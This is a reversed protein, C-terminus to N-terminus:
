KRFIKDICGKIKKKFPKKTTPEIKKECLLVSNYIDIDRHENCTPCTYFLELPKKIEKWMKLCDLHYKHSCEDFTIYEREILPDFCIPCELSELPNDIEFCLNDM